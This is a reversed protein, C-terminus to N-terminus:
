IQGDAKEECSALNNADQQLKELDIEYTKIIEQEEISHIKDCGDGDIFATVENKDDKDIVVHFSHGICTRKRIEDLLYYIVKDPDSCVLTYQKFKQYYRHKPM